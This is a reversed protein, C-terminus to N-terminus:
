MGWISGLRRYKIKLSKFTYSIVVFLTYMFKVNM